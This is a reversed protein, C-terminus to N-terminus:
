NGKANTEKITVIEEARTQIKGHVPADRDFEIKRLKLNYDYDWWFGWFSLVGAVYGAAFLVTKIKIHM